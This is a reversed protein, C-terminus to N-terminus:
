AIAKKREWLTWLHLGRWLSPFFLRAHFGIRFLIHLVYRVHRQSPWFRRRRRTKTTNQGPAGVIPVRTPILSRSLVEIKSKWSSLLSAHLWIGDKNPHFMGTLPSASFRRLWREPLPLLQTMEKELLHSINCQFWDRALWFAVAEFSRLSANHLEIWQKWFEDDQAHHHLFWAVEYVHHILWEGRQLDRLIHLACYGLNDIPHLAPYDFGNVQRMARRSWFDEIGPMVQKTTEPNWLCFHLDISPPMEPDYMNGRWKWGTKRAMVPLHDAPAKRLTQDPEYGLQAFVESARNLMEQPCFFDIDSQFRLNENEIFEPCLTFGKLVLYDIKAKNLAQAIEIYDSRISLVRAKNDALNNALKAAVWEPAVQQLIGALPLTLHALDGFELMEQWENDKLERFANISANKFQLACLMAQFFAPTKGLHRDNVM